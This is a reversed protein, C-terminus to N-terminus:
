RVTPIKKLNSLIENCCYGREYNSLPLTDNIASILYQPCGAESLLSLTIPDSMTVVANSFIAPDTSAVDQIVTKIVAKLRGTMEM